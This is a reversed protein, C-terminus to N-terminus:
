PDAFKRRWLLKLARLLQYRKVRRKCFISGHKEVLDDTFSIFYKKKKGISVQNIPGCIDSHVLELLKRARWAKGKSFPDRHQKGIVCEECVQSPPIFQPLGAVM